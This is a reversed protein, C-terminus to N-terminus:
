EKILRSGNRDIGLFVQTREILGIIIEMLTHHCNEDWM